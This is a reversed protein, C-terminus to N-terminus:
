EFKENPVGRVVVGPTSMNLHNRASALLFTHLTPRPTPRQWVETLGLDPAPLASCPRPCFRMKIRWTKIPPPTSFPFPPVAFSLFLPFRIAFFPGMSDSWWAYYRLGPTELWFYSSPSVLPHQPSLVEIFGLSVWLFLVEPCHLKPCTPLVVLGCAAESLLFSPFQFLALSSAEPELSSGDCWYSSYPSPPLHLRCWIAKRPLFLSPYKIICSRRLSRNFRLSKFAQVSYMGTYYALNIPSVSNFSFLISAKNVIRVIKVWKM